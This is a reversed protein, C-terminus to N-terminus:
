YKYRIPTSVVVYFFIRYELVTMLRVSFQFCDLVPTAIRWTRCVVHYLSTITTSCYHVIAGREKTVVHYRHDPSIMTAMLLLGGEM